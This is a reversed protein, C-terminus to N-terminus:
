LVPPESHIEDFDIACEPLEPQRAHRIDEFRPQTVGFPVAAAV